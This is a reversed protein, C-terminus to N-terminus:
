LPHQCLDRAGHGQSNQEAEAPHRKEGVACSCDGERVFWREPVAQTVWIAGFISTRDPRTVLGITRPTPENFLMQMEAQSPPARLQLM